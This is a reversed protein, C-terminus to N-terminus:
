ERETALFRLYDTDRYGMRELAVISSAASRKDGGCLTARVWPDLIRFDNSSQAIARLIDAAELCSHKVAGLAGRQRDIEARVLLINSLLITKFKANKDRDAFSGAINESQGADNEAEDLKGQKLLATTRLLHARVLQWQLADDGPNARIVQDVEAQAAVADSVADAHRGLALYIRAKQLKIAFRETQWLRNDPEQRLSDEIQGVALDLDGLADNARGLAVLLAGKLKNALALRYSWVPADPEVRRLGELVDRQQDYLDAAPELHGREAEASALWSLSDALAATLSRDEPRRELARRKLAISQEFNVAAADEKGQRLELSGLSSLAYSLEIWADTDDPDLATMRQAFGRYETFSREAGEIRGQDLAIQGFWFSVSGSTKLLERDAPGGALNIQLLAEAQILAKLAADINGRSRDVDALTRLAKAQRLRSASPVRGADEATLYGLAEKAVGDLLDLRGLPRLKETLDGLMYDTLAEAEQLRLAAVGEAQSARLGLFLAVLAIMAFGALAGLRLKEARKAQRVSAAILATVETNLPVVARNLLDRAEELPKGRRLLRDARRGEAAWQQALGDLRSRTRLAQRHEAIWAVARPWQRL